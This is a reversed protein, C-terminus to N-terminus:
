LSLSTIREFAATINQKALKENHGKIDKWPNEPSIKTVLLESWVITNTKSETLEWQTIFITNMLSKVIVIDLLYDAADSTTVKNFVQHSEILSNLAETFCKDTVCNNICRSSYGGYVDLSVSYSHKNNIILYETIIEKPILANPNPMCGTMMLVILIAILRLSKSLSFNSACGPLFLYLTFFSLTKYLIKSKILM